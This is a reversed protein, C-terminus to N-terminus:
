EFYHGCSPCFDLGGEIQTGCKGCSGVASAATTNTRRTSAMEEDAIAEVIKLPDLGLKTVHKWRNSFTIAEQMAAEIQWQRQNREEKDPIQDAIDMEAQLQRLFEDLTPEGSSADMGSSVAVGM